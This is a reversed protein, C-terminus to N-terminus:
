PQAVPPLGNAGAAQQGSKRLAKEWDEHSRKFVQFTDYEDADVKGGKNKDILEFVWEYGPKQRDWEDRSAWGLIRRTGDAAAPRLNARELIQGLKPGAVRMEPSKGVLM